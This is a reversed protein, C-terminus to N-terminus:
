PSSKFTATQSTGDLAAEKTGGRVTWNRGGARDRAELITCRYGAKELEYAVTLGAVGAGLVIVSASSRGTLTFDTRSPARFDVRTSGIPPLLGLAEMAGLTLGAGGVAGLAVLLARRTIRRETV